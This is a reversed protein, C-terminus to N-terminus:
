LRGSLRYTNMNYIDQMEDNALLCVRVTDSHGIPRKKQSVRYRLNSIFVESGPAAGMEKDPRGRCVLLWM